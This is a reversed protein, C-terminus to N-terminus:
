QPPKVSKQQQIGNIRRLRAARKRKLITQFEKQDRKPQAAKERRERTIREASTYPVEVPIGHIYVIKTNRKNTEFHSIRIKGDRVDKGMKVVGEKMIPTDKLENYVYECFLM